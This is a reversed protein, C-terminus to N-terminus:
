VKEQQRSYSIYSFNTQVTELIFCHNTATVLAAYLVGGLFTQRDPWIALFNIRLPNSQAFLLAIEESCCYGSLEEFKQKLIM